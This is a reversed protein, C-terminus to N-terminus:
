EQAQHDCRDVARRIRRAHAMPNKPTSQVGVIHGERDRLPCFLRGHLHSRPGAKVFVWGRREAYLIAERIEKNPHEPVLV